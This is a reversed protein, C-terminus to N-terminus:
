NQMILATTQRRAEASRTRAASSLLIPSFGTRLGCRRMGRQATVEDVGRLPAGMRAGGASPFWSTSAESTSRSSYYPIKRAHASAMSRKTRSSVVGYPNKSAPLMARISKQCRYADMIAYSAVLGASNNTSKPHTKLWSKFSAEPKQTASQGTALCARLGHKEAFVQMMFLGDTFGRMYAVCTQEAFEHAERTEGPPHTCASYLM